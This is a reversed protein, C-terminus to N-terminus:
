KIITLYHTGVRHTHTHTLSPPPSLSCVIYLSLKCEKIEDCIFECKHDGSVVFGLIVNLFLVFFSQFHASPTSLLCWAWRATPLAKSLTLMVTIVSLPFSALQSFHAGHSALRSGQTPGRFFRIRKCYRQYASCGFMTYDQPTHITLGRINVDQWGGWSSWCTETM